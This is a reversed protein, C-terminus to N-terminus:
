EGQLSEKAAHIYIAFDGPPISQTSKDLEKLLLATNPQPRELRRVIPDLRHANQMTGVKQAAILYEHAADFDPQPQASLIRVRFSFDGEHVPRVDILASNDVGAHTKSREDNGHLFQLVDPALNQIQLLVPQDTGRVRVTLKSKTAPALSQGAADFEVALAIVTRRASAQDVAIELESAGPDTRPGLLIVLSRPSAALVLASDRHFQVRNGIADGRFGAGRVEFRDHSSVFAPVSDIRLKGAPEHPLILACASVGPNTAFRAIVPGPQSPATFFARGTVDTEAHTGDSFNVQTRPVLRGFKDLVSLTAPEAAIM